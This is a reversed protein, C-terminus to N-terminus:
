ANESTYSEIIRNCVQVLIEYVEEFRGDYYPDPVSDGHRNDYSMITKIKQAHSDNHAMRLVDSQNYSDMTLILDFADLDNTKIQRARQGSIDLGRKACTAIARRDPQEGIHWSGTGASDVHWDLDAKAAMDSLIGEAMPSRCINGLCVMLIKM